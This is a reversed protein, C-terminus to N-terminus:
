AKAVGAEEGGIGSISAISEIAKWRFQGFLFSLEDSKCYKTRQVIERRM